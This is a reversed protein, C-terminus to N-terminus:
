GLDASHLCQHRAGAPTLTSEFLKIATVSQQGFDTQANEEILELLERTGRGSKIRGLTIHPRYPRKDIEIGRRELGESLRSHLLSLGDVPEVGAWVVRPRDKRGFFGLSRLQLPFPEAAAAVEDLLCELSAIKGAPTDGLFALSLHLNAAPVWRAHAGAHALKSLIRGLKRRPEDGIEIAVFM